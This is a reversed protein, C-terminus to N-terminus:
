FKIINHLVVRGEMSTILVGEPLNELAPNLYMMMSILENQSLGDLVEKVVEVANSKELRNM